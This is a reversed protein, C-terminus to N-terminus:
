YNGAGSGVRFVQSETGKYQKGECPGGVPSGFQHGRGLSSSFDVRAAAGGMLVPSIPSM